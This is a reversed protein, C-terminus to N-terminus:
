ERSDWPQVMQIKPGFFPDNAPTPVLTNHFDGLWSQGTTTDIIVFQAAGGAVQFRGNYNPSSTTTVSAGIGLMVLAGLALGCLASKLDIKM